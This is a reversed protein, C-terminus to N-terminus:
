YYERVAIVDGNETIVRPVRKSIGCVIEYGITDTLAAIDDATIVEDGDRGILTVETGEHVDPIGTVDCMLQDMCIRGVIPARHGGILVYGKGSLSRPYGDAYGIPVTAVATERDTTYTRGYSISKGAPLVKVYSVAAKLDMVPLLDVPLTLSRDPKLGYLLIGFRALTSRPDFHILSGASNLCHSHRLPIHERVGDAVAFFARKQEETYATDEEDTSDASAFHTFIGDLVIGPLEAASLVAKVADEAQEGIRGMGTDVAMHIKVKIGCRVAEDSLEKAHAYSVATQIVDNQSLEGAYSAPTHGLILIEGTVGHERLTLAERINSVAFFSIGHRRELYSAITGDDHGYANAKVVCCVQTDVAGSLQEINKGLRDLHIQAWARKLYSM